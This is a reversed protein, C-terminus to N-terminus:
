LFAAVRTTPTILQADTVRAVPPYNRGRYRREDQYGGADGHHRPRTVTPLGSPGILLGRSGGPGDPEGPRLPQPKM